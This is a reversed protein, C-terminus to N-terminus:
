ESVFSAFETQSTKFVLYGLEVAFTNTDQLDRLRQGARCVGIPNICWCGAV